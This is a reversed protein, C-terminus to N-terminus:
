AAPDPLRMAHLFAAVAFAFTSVSSAWTFVNGEVDADLGEVRDDLLFENILHAATQFAVAAAALPFGIRLLREGLM